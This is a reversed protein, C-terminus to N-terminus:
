VQDEPGYPKQSDTINDLNDFIWKVIERSKLSELKKKATSLIYDDGEGKPVIMRLTPAFSIDKAIFSESKVPLESGEEVILWHMDAPFREKYFDVNNKPVYIAKLNDCGEFSNMEINSVEAPM